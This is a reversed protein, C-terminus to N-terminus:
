MGCARSMRIIFLSLLLSFMIIVIFVSIAGRKPVGPALLLVVVRHETAEKTSNGPAPPKNKLVDISNKDEEEIYIM